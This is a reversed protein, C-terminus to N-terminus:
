QGAKWEKYQKNAEERIKDLGNQELKAKADAMYQDYDPMSGTSLIPKLEQITASVAAVETELGTSDFFYGLTSSPAGNRNAEDMAALADKRNWTSDWQDWLPGVWNHWIAWTQEDGSQPIISKSGIEATREEDVTYNIGEIGYAITNSLEPDSWILNLVELAKEPNKSTVSIANMAGIVNGTVVNSTGVCIEACDFGYAASSKEENPDYSGTCMMVAYKGSIAEDYYATKAAADKAIYGKQYWDYMIEYHESRADLEYVFEQLEEDFILGPVSNDTYRDSVFPYLEGGAIILAPTIGPENEILLEFFPEFDRLSKVNKYDFDYKDVLDRKVVNSTTSAYPSQGPIAYVAGNITVGKWAYDLTKALIDPAYEELMGSIDAFAGGQALGAFPNLWSCTFCIDFEEGAQIITSMKETYAAQDIFHFDVKAGTEKFIVENIAEEVEEEQAMDDDVKPLYWSIIIPEKNQEEKEVISSKQTEESGQATSSSANETQGCGTVLGVTMGAVLIVSILKKRM